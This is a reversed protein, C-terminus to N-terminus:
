LAATVARKYEPVLRKSDWTRSLGIPFNTKLSTVSHQSIAVARLFSRLTKTMDTLVYWVGHRLLGSSTVRWRVATLVEFTMKNYEKCKLAGANLHWSRDWCNQNWYSSRQVRKLVPRLSLLLHVYVGTLIHHCVTVCPLPLSPPFERISHTTRWMVESCPADM